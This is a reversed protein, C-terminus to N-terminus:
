PITCYTIWCFIVKFVIALLHIVIVYCIFQFNFTNFKRENALINSTKNFYNIDKLVAVQMIEM